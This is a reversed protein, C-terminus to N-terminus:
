RTFRRGCPAVVVRIALKISLQGPQCPSHYTTQTKGGRGAQKETVERGLSLKEGGKKQSLSDM